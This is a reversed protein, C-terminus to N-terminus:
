LGPPQPLARFSFHVEKRESDATEPPKRLPEISDLVTSV